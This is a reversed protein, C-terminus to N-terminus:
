KIAVSASLLGEPIPITLEPLLLVRILRHLVELLRGDVAPRNVDLMIGPSSTVRFFHFITVHTGNHKIVRVPHRYM